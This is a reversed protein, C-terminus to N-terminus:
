LILIYLYLSLVSSNLAPFRVGFRWLVLMIKGLIFWDMFFGEGGLFFLM